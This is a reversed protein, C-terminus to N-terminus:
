GRWRKNPGIRSCIFYSTETNKKSLNKYLSLNFDLAVANLGHDEAVGKLIGIAAPPAVLDYKPISCLLVSKM